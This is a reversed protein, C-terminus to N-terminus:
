VKFGKSSEYQVRCDHIDTEEVLPKPVGHDNKPSWPKRAYGSLGLGSGLGWVGFGLGGVRYVRFGLGM